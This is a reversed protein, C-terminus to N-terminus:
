GNPVEARESPLKHLVGPDGRSGGEGDAARPGPLHGGSPPHVDLSPFCIGSPPLSRSGPGGLRSVSAHPTDLGNEALRPPSPLVLHECKGLKRGVQLASLVHHSAFSCPLSAPFAKGPWCSLERVEPSATEGRLVVTGKIFYLPNQMALKMPSKHATINAFLM